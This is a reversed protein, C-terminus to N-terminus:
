FAVRVGGYAAAGPTAFSFVEEYKVDFLNEVRGFVSFRDSLKYQANLNVLTFPKLSVRVPVYSPDTYAVDDIRGNYRVTLTTSFREDKSFLTANVSAIDGPRRVETVGDETADLHTYVAEIQVQRIPRLSATVEVGHQKSDTARNAPTATYNPAPYSTYIEDTLKSDFWTAGIVAKGDWFSQDIGVEWGQSKEPKLNPNGIYTGSSYGYLEYYGPNKV